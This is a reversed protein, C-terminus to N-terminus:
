EWLSSRCTHSTGQAFRTADDWSIGPRMKRGAQILEPIRDHCELYKVLERAKNIRGEAPLDDYEVDLCFCLSRLEERDFQTTLIEALAILKARRTTQASPRLQVMQERIALVQAVLRDCDTILQEWDWWDVGHRAM